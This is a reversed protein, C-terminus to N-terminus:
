MVRSAVNLLVTGERTFRDILVAETIDWVGKEELLVLDPEFGADTLSKIWIQVPSLKKGTIFCQM